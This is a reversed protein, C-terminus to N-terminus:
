RTTWSKPSVELAHCFAAELGQLYWAMVKSKATHHLYQEELTEDGARYDSRCFTIGCANRMVRGKGCGGPQSREDWYTTLLETAMEDIMRVIGGFIERLKALVEDAEEGYTFHELVHDFVKCSGKQKRCWADASSYPIAAKFKVAHSVRKM